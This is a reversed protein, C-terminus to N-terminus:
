PQVCKGSVRKVNTNGVAKFAKFTFPTPQSAAATIQLAFKSEGVPVTDLAGVRGSRLVPDSAADKIM